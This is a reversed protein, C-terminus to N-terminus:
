WGHCGYGDPPNPQIREAVMIQQDETAMAGEPAFAEGGYNDWNARTIGLGGSFRPSDARWNGGEECMAVQEWAARQGPTVTDVPGSAPAVAPAPGQPPVPAPAPTPAIARALLSGNLDLLLSSRATVAGTADAQHGTPQHAPQHAITTTTAGSPPGAAARASQVTAAQMLATVTIIAIPAIAALAIRTRM